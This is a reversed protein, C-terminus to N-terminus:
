ATGDWDVNNSLKICNLNMECKVMVIVFELQM